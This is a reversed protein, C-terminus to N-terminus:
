EPLLRPIKPANPFVGFRAYAASAHVLLEDLATSTAPSDCKDVPVSLWLWIASREFPQVELVLGEPLTENFANIDDDQDEEVYIDHEILVAVEIEDDLEGSGMSPPGVFVQWDVFRVETLPHYEDAVDMDNNPGTDVGGCKVLQDVVSQHQPSRNM